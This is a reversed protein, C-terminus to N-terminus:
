KRGKGRADLELLLPHHNSHVQTLHTVAAEPFFTRWKDNCIGRNLRKKVRAGGGSLNNWTLAPGSFGLDILECSCICNILSNEHKGKFLRGGRKEEASVVENLDGIILWPFKIQSGILNFYKWLEKRLKEEPSAYM